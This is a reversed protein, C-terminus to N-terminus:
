SASSRQTPASASLSRSRRCDARLGPNKLFGRVCLRVDNIFAELWSIGRADRTEEKHKEMPGFSRLAKLRADDPTMGLAINKETEMEIHFRVEANLGRDLEGGRILAQLRKWM